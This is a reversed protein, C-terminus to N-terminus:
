ERWAERLGKRLAEVAACETFYEPNEVEPDAPSSRVGRAGAGGRFLSDRGGSPIWQPARVTTALLAETRELSGHLKGLLAELRGAPIQHPRLLNRELSTLWKGDVRFREAAEAVTLGSRGRLFGLYAALTAPRGSAELHADFGLDAEAREAIRDLRARTKASLPEPACVSELATAAAESLGLGPRKSRSIRVLLSGLLAADEAPLPEDSLASDWEGNTM